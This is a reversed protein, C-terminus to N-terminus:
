HGNTKTVLDLMKGQGKNKNLHKIKVWRTKSNKECTNEKTKHINYIKNKRTM